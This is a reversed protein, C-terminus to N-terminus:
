DFIWVWFDHYVMSNRWKQLTRARCIACPRGNAVFRPCPLYGFEQKRSAEDAIHSVRGFVSEELGHDGGWKPRSMIERHVISLGSAAPPGTNDATTAPVSKFFLQTRVVPSGEVNQGLV